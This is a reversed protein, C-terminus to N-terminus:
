LAPRSPCTVTASLWASVMLRDQYACAPTITADDRTAIPVRPVRTQSRHAGARRHFM